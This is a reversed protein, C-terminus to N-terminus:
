LTLLPLMSSILQADHFGRNWPDEYDRLEFNIGLDTLAELGAGVQLFRTGYVGQRAKSSPNNILVHTLYKLPERETSSNKRCTELFIQALEVATYNYGEVHELMNGILVKPVDLAALEDAVGEVMLHPLVSTFFSGPGFVVINASRMTEVLLPNAPLSQRDHITTNDLSDVFFVDRMRSRQVSRNLNTVKDQGKVVAGDELQVGIHLDNRLSVPLVNGRIGCLQRFVYIATNMNEGHAFYAGVLVFNGISGYNLSMQEPIRAECNQLYNVIVERLSPEIAEVIPHSGRTFRLFEARLEQDGGDEPLRANFLKVVGGVRGEGHAMTMLAHRVDGIPMVNLHRRLQKSSGGNDWVPVVRTLEYKYGSLAINIARFGTGGAFTVVRLAPQQITSFRELQPQNPVDAGNRKQTGRQAQRLSVWSYYCTKSFWIVRRGFALTSATMLLCLFLSLLWEKQILSLALFVLSLLAISRSLRLLTRHHEMRQIVQSPASAYLEYRISDMVIAGSGHKRKWRGEIAKYFPGFIYEALVNSLFGIVYSVVIVFFVFLAGSPDTQVLTPPLANSFLFLSLLVGLAGVAVFEALVATTNM